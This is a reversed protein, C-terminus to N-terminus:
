AVWFVMVAGLAGTGGLTSNSGPGGTGGGAGWGNANGGSTNSTGGNGGSGGSPWVNAGGGAAGYSTGTTGQIGGCLSEAAWGDTGQQGGGNSWGGSAGGYTSVSEAMGNTLSYSSSTPPAGHSGGMAGGGDYELGNRGKNGLVSFAGFSTNGGLGPGAGPPVQGATGGAGVTISLTGGPTVPIRRSLCFEGSSGAGYAQAGTGGLYGVGGGGAGSASIWVASVGPPVNFTGSSIFVQSQLKALGTSRSAAMRVQVAMPLVAKARAVAVPVMARRRRARDALAPTGEQAGSEGCHQAAAVVATAQRETQPAVRAAALFAVREPALLDRVTHLGRTEARAGQAEALTLPAKWRASCAMRQALRCAAALAAAAARLIHAGWVAPVQAAPQASHLLAM